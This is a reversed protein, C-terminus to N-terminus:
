RRQRFYLVDTNATSAVEKNSQDVTYIKSTGTSSTIPNKATHTTPTTPIITNANPTLQTNAFIRRRM